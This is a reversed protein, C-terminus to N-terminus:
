LSLGKVLEVAKEAIQLALQDLKGLTGSVTFRFKPPSQGQRINVVVNVSDRNVKYGGSLLWVEDMKLKEDFVIPAEMGRSSIGMLENNLAKGLGLDDYLITEDSNQVTVAGFLPKEQPLIIRKVVEEDVVGVNFNNTAV